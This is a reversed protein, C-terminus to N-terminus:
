HNHFLLVHNKVCARSWNVVRAIPHHDQLSVPGLPSFSPPTQTIICHQHFILFPVHPFPSSYGVLGAHPQYNISDYETEHTPQRQARPPPSASCSAPLTVEEHSRAGPPPVAGQFHALTPMVTVAPSRVYVNLRPLVNHNSQSGHKFHCRWEHDM